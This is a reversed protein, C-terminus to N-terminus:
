NNSLFETVYAAQDDHCEEANQEPSSENGPKPSRVREALIQGPTQAASERNLCQNM